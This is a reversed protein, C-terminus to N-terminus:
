RTPPHLLAGRVISYVAVLYTTMIWLGAHPMPAYFKNLALLADSIMFSVAGGFILWFSGTTTRHYRFVTQLLMLTLVLAYAMVPIQLAGLHPLLIVVLGAGVLIVPFSLRAEATGVPVVAVHRLQRYSTIFLVHAMLFAALGSIFYVANYAEFLLSVDGVWCFFLATLFSRNRPRAALAYYMALFMLLLPKVVLHTGGWGFIQCLLEVAVVILFFLHAIRASRITDM